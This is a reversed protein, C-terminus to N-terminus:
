EPISRLLRNVSRRALAFADADGLLRHRVHAASLLADIEFAAERARRRGTATPPLAITLESTLLDIWERKLGRVAEAVPGDQAAYEASTTLLFCGGPFVDGTAYAFWNDVIGRLRSLGPERRWAPRVVHEVYVRRAEAVAALQIAERNEFVTLIGSKSLGTGAALRGVSVSELGAVSALDAAYRAALRRTADGRERRGDVKEAM